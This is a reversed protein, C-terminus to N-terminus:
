AGDADCRCHTVAHRADVAPLVIDVHHFAHEAVGAVLGGFRCRM